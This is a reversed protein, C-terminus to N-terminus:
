AWSRERLNESAFKRSSHDSLSVTKHSHVKGSTSIVQFGSPLPDHQVKLKMEDAKSLLAMVATEHSADRIDKDNVELIRDGMRLKGTRAAAGGPIIKQIFNHCNSRAEYDEVENSNIERSRKLTSIYKVYRPFSFELTAPGSLCAPTIRAASSASVWPVALSLSLLMRFHFPHTSLWYTWM